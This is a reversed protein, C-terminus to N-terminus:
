SDLESTTCINKKHEVIIYCDTSYIYFDVYPRYFNMLMSNQIKKNRLNTKRYQTHSHILCKVNTRYTFVMINNCRIGTPQKPLNSAAM